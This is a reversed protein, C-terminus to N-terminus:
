ADQVASNSGFLGCLNLNLKRCPCYWVTTPYQKHKLKGEEIFMLHGCNKCRLPSEAKRMEDAGKM